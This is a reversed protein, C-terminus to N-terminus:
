PSDINITDVTVSSMDDLRYVRTVATTTPDLHSLKEGISAPETVVVYKSDPSWQIPSLITRGGLMDRVELTAPNIAAAKGERTRFGIYEGPSGRPTKPM